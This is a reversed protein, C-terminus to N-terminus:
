DNVTFPIRLTLDTDPAADTTGIGVALNFPTGGPMRFSYGLLFKGITVDSGVVKQPSANEIKTENFLDLQYAFSISAMENLGIGMGFNFRLADGPDVNGFGVQTTTTQGTNPDTQDIFFTGKDDELTWLYGINGFIAVPDSPYIFTISPNVSWFGSGTGLEGSFDTAGMALLEQTEIEFPDDGTDSKILRQRVRTASVIPFSQRLFQAPKIEQRYPLQLKSESLNIM